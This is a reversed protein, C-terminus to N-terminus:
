NGILKYDSTESVEMSQFEAIKREKKGALAKFGLTWLPKM